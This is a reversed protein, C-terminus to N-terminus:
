IGVAGGRWTAIVLAHGLCHGSDGIHLIVELGGRPIPRLFSRLNTCSELHQVQLV